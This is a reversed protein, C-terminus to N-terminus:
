ANATGALDDSRWRTFLSTGILRQGQEEALAL